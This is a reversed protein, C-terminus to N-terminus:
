PLQEVCQLVVALHTPVFRHIHKLKDPVGQTVPPTQQSACARDCACGRRQLHVECYQKQEAHNQEAMASLFDRVVIHQQM